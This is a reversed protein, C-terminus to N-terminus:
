VAKSGRKPLAVFIKERDQEEGFGLVTVSHPTSQAPGVVHSVCASLVHDYGQAPLLLHNLRTFVLYNM